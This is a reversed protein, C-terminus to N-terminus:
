CSRLLLLQCGAASVFSNSGRGDSSDFAIEMPNGGCACRGSSDPGRQLTRTRCSVRAGGSGLRRCASARSQRGLSGQSPLPRSDSPLPPATIGLRWSPPTIVNHESDRAVPLVLRAYLYIRLKGWDAEAKRPSDHIWLEGCRLPPGGASQPTFSLLLIYIYMDGGWGSSPEPPELWGLKVSMRLHCLPACGCIAQRLSPLVQLRPESRTCRSDVSRPIPGTQVVSFLGVGASQTVSAPRAAWM